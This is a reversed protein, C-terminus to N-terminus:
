MPVSCRSRAMRLSPAVAAAPKSRADFTSGALARWDSLRACFSASFDFWSQMKTSCRRRPIQRSLSPTATSTSRAMFTSKWFRSVSRARFSGCDPESIRWIPAGGNEALTTLTETLEGRVDIWNAANIVVAVLVMALALVSLAIRIFRRRIRRIM